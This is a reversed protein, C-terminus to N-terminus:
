TYVSRPGLSTVMCWFTSTNIKKIYTWFPFNESNGEHKVKEGEKSTVIFFRKAFKLKKKIAFVANRLMPRTVNTALFGRKGRGNCFGNTCSLPCHLNFSFRKPVELEMNLRVNKKERHLSFHDQFSNLLWDCIKSSCPVVEHDVIYVFLRSLYM